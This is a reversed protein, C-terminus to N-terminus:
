AGVKYQIAEAMHCTKIEPESDLDAITRSIKILKFYTRASFGYKEHAVTLLGSVEPNLKCYKLIMPNTMEANTCIRDNKFRELQTERAKMLGERIRLSAEDSLGNSSNSIANNLREKEVARVRVHLDIRDLIPGSLKRRYQEVRRIGCNCEKTPDGFYGCPCPNSSAVLIFQAPFVAGGRGRLISIKGDEMPQRLAELVNRDFENIEDLFLVGRHALTIEGPVPINGGGILGAYSTTHHPNRFPRERVLGGEPPIKGVLSYIKTVEIAESESLPPLIEVLARAAMTKGSGPPGIIILNHGGAACIELSRKLQEQGVIDKLTSEELKYIGREQNSNQDNIYPDIIRKRCFHAYLSSLDKAGFVNIGKVCSAEKRCEYPVYLNKLGNEKAFLALLFAGKTHRLGGNLSIEGFYLSSEPLVVGTSAALLGVAIPLDYFSGEKNKDAPALNVTIKKDPFELGSNQFAAKIRHRSEEVSKAALGVIDFSPLGRNSINVEVNVGFTDLSSFLISNINVLM